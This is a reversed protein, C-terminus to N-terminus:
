KGGTSFVWLSPQKKKATDGKRLLEVIEGQGVLYTHTLHENSGIETSGATKTRSQNKWTTFPDSKCGLQSVLAQVVIQSSWKICEGVDVKYFM